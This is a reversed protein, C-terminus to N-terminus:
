DQTAWSLEVRDAPAAWQVEFRQIPWTVSYRRQPVARAAVPRSARAPQAPLVEPKKKEKEELSRVANAIATAVAETSATPTPKMHASPKGGQTKGAETTVAETPTAPRPNEVPAKPQPKRIIGHTPRSQDTPQPAHAEQAAARISGGWLFVVVVILARRM